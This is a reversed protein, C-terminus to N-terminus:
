ALGTIIFTLSWTATTTSNADASPPTIKSLYGTYTRGAGIPQLQANCPQVTVSEDASGDGVQEYAALIDAEDREADYDSGCVLDSFTPRGFVVKPNPDGGNYRIESDASKEGGECRDFYRTFWSSSILFSAETGLGM